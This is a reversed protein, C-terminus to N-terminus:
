ILVRRSACAEKQMTQPLSLQKQNQKLSMAPTSSLDVPIKKSEPKCSLQSSNQALASSLAAESSILYEWVLRASFSSNWSALSLADLARSIAASNVNEAETRSKRLARFACSYMFTFDAQPKFPNNHKSFKCIKTGSLREPSFDIMRCSSLVAAPFSQEFSESSTAL